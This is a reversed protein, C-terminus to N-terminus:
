RGGRRRHGRKSKKKGKRGGKGRVQFLDKAEEMGEVMKAKM